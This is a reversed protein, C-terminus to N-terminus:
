FLGQEDDAGARITRHQARPAPTTTAAFSEEGVRGALRKKDISILVSIVQALEHDRITVTAGRKLPADDADGDPYWVTLKTFPASGQYAARSIRLEGRRGRPLILVVRDPDNHTM